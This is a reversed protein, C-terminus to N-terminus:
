GSQTFFGPDSGSSPLQVAPSVLSSNDDPRSFPVQIGKPDPLSVRTSVKAVPDTSPVYNTKPPTLTSYWLSWQAHWLPFGGFNGGPFIRNFAWQPNKDYPVTPVGGVTKLGPIPVQLGVRLAQGWLRFWYRAHGVRQLIDAYQDQCKLNVGVDRVSDLRPDDFDCSALTDPLNNVQPLHSHIVMGSDLMVGVTCDYYVWTTRPDSPWPLLMGKDTVQGDDLDSVGVQFQDSASLGYLQNERFIPM